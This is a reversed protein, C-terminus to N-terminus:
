HGVRQNHSLRSGIALLVPGPPGGRARPPVGPRPGGLIPLRCLLLLYVLGYALLRTLDALSLAMPMFPVQILDALSFAVPM